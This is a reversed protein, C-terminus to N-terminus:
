ASVVVAGGRVHHEGGSVLPRQLQYRQGREPLVGDIDRRIGPKQAAASWRGALSKFALGEPTLRGTGGFLSSDHCANDNWCNDTFWAYRQVFPLANLMAFLKQMYSVALASTPSYLMPEGWSRLNMAGIETIWIPRQYERHIQILQARLQDVAGPNTFNQYYHLAIFNVRLHRQKALRMFKALWGDTPVAPAPSGLELGTSELKPWLAAAQAPTMNSQSTSDPENFGLLYRVEGSQKDRRLSTLVQPTISGSGWIMPVWELSHDTPPQQSSWNYAWTAGIASLKAPDRSLYTASAVGAKSVMVSGTATADAYAITTTAALLIGTFGALLRASARRRHRQSASM